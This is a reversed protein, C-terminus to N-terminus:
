GQAEKKKVTYYLYCLWDNRSWPHTKLNISDWLSQFDEILHWDAKSHEGIIDKYTKPIGEKICDEPTISQIRQCGIGNLAIHYRSAREPMMIASRKYYGVAARGKEIILDKPLTDAYYIPKSWDPKFAVRYGTKTKISTVQWYGYQWYTEKGYLESGIGGYPCKVFMVEDTNKNHFYAGPLNKPYQNIATCEWEDPNQNIKDLGRCRSTRSKRGELNALTMAQSYMIGQM